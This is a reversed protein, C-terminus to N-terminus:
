ITKKAGKHGVYSWLADIQGRQIHHDKMLIEEIEGAHEAAARLWDLITDETHGKARAISSIRVGEALLILSEIIESEDVRRRYLITGKTETFTEKCSKCYYRQKGAQTKGFKIINRQDGSQYKGYDSCQDNPCFDGVKVLESM